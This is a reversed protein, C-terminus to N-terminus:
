RLKAKLEPSVFIFRGPAGAKEWKAAPEGLEGPPPQNMTWVVLGGTKKFEGWWM